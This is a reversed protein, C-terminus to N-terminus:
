DGLHELMERVARCETPYAYMCIRDVMDLMAQRTSPFTKMFAADRSLCLQVRTLAAEDRSVCYHMGMLGVLTPAVRASRFVDHSHWLTCWADVDLSHSQQMATIARDVLELQELVRLLNSEIWSHDHTVELRVVVKHLTCCLWSAFPQSLTSPICFLLSTVWPPLIAIGSAVAFVCEQLLQWRDGDFQLPLYVVAITQRGYAEWDVDVHAMVALWSAFDLFLNPERNAQRTRATSSVVTKTWLGTANSYVFQVAQSASSIIYGFRAVLGFPLPATPYHDLGPWLLQLVRKWRPHGDFDLLIAVVGALTYNPREVQALFACLDDSSGSTTMALHVIRSCLLPHNFVSSFSLDPCLSPLFFGQHIGTRLLAAQLAEVCAHVIMRKSFRRWVTIVDTRREPHELMATLLVQTLQRLDPQVGQGDIYRRVQMELRLSSFPPALTTSTLYEHLTAPVPDFPLPFTTSSRGKSPAAVMWWAVCNLFFHWQLRSEPSFTPKWAETLVISFRINDCFLADQATCYAFLEYATHLPQHVAELQALFATVLASSHSILPSSELPLGLRELCEVLKSRVNADSCHVACLDVVHIVYVRRRPALAQSLPDGLYQVLQHFRDFQALFDSFSQATAVDISQFDCSLCIALHFARTTDLTIWHFLVDTVLQKLASREPALAHVWRAGEHGQGSVCTAFVEAWVRVSSVCSILDGVDSPPLTWWSRPQGKASRPELITSIVQVIFSMIHDRYLSSDDMAEVATALATLSSISTTSDLCAEWLRRASSWALETAFLALAVDAITCMLALLSSDHHVLKEVCDHILDLAWEAPRCRHWSWLTPTKSHGVCALTAAYIAQVCDLPSFASLLAIEVAMDRSTTAATPVLTFSGAAEWLVAVVDSFYVIPSTKLVQYPKSLCLRWVIM